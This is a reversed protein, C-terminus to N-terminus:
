IKFYQDYLKNYQPRNITSTKLLTDLMAVGTNRMQISTNGALIEGVILELKKVLDKPNNFFMVNGGRQRRNRIGSGQMTKLRNEYNKIYQNLTVRVDDIEKNRKQRDAASIEGSNYKKTVNAKLGKTQNRKTKADKM